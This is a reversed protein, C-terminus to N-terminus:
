QPIAANRHAGFDRCSALQEAQVREIHGIFTLQDGNDLGVRRGRKQGDHPRMRQARPM